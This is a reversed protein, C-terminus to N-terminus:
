ETDQNERETAEEQKEDKVRGAVTQVSFLVAPSTNRVMFDLTHNRVREKALMEPTLKMREWMLRNIEKTMREILLLSDDKPPPAVTVAADDEITWIKESKSMMLELRLSNMLQRKGTVRFASRFFCFKAFETLLRKEDMEKLKRM